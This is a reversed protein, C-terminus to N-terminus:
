TGYNQHVMAFKHIAKIIAGHKMSKLPGMHVIETYRMRWAPFGLHCRVPGYVLLLNPQPGGLGVAELAKGMNEETFTTKDQEESASVDLYRKCLFSAAKAIGEKGDSISIFELTMQNPDLCLDMKDGELHWLRSGMEELIIKKSKKLVGDMDYLCIHKVGIDSLWCLLKIVRVIDYAEQSEIVIALHQLKTLDLATYKNLLGSSILYSNLTHITTLVFYWIKALLHIFLWVLRLM